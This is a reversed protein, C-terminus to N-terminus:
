VIRIISFNQFKEDKKMRKGTNRKWYNLFYKKWKLCKKILGKWRKMVPKKEFWTNTGGYIEKIKILKIIEPCEPGTEPWSVFRWFWDGDLVTSKGGAVDGLPLIWVYVKCCNM